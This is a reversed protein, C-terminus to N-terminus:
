KNARKGGFFIYKKVGDENLLNVKQDDNEGQFKEAFYGPLFLVQDKLEILLVRKMSKEVKENYCKNAVLRFKEIKYHGQKLKSFGIYPKLDPKNNTPKPETQGYSRLLNLASSM